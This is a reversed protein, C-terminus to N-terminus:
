TASSPTTRRRRAMWTLLPLSSVLMLFRSPEPVLSMREAANTQPQFPGGAIALETFVDFFSDIQYNGGGVDDIRTTGRSHRVPSERLDISFDDVTGTLSMSLIETDWSGTDSAGKGRIVVLMPGTLLVREPGIGVDFSGEVRADFTQTEDGTGPDTSV